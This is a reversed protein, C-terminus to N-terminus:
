QSEFEVNRRDQSQAQGETNGDRRQRMINLERVLEQNQRTLEAMTADMSQVSRFLM